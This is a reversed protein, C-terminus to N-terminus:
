ANQAEKWEPPYNLPEEGYLKKNLCPDPRRHVDYNFALLRTIKRKFDAIEGLTAAPDRRRVLRFFNKTEGIKECLKEFALWYNHRKASEEVMERTVVRQANRKKRNKM